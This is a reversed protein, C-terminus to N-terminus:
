VFHDVSIFMLECGDRLNNRAPAPTVSDNGNRGDASHDRRAPAAVHLGGRRKMAQNAGFPMFMIFQVGVVVPVVQSKVGIRLGSPGM